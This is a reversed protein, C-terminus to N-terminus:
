PELVTVDVTIGTRNSYSPLLGLVDVRRQVQVTFGNVTSSTVMAVDRPDTTIFSPVVTPITAYPTGYVVTYLGSGNTTGRYAMPLKSPITPKGTLDAYSGTIAVTAFSPKGTISAWSQPPITSIYGSPNTLPYYRADGLTNFQSKKVMSDVGQQRLWALSDTLGQISVTQFRIRVWRGAGVTNPNKIYNFGDDAMTCTDSYFYVAASGDNMANKGNTLGQLGNAGVQGRMADATPFSAVQGFSLCGMGMLIYLFKGWKNKAILIPIYFM